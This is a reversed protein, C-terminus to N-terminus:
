SFRSPGCPPGPNPELHRRHGHEPRRPITEAGVFFLRHRPRTLPPDRNAPACVSADAGAPPYLSTQPSLSHSPPSPPLRREPRSYTLPPMDSIHHHFQTLSHTSFHPIPNFGVAKKPPAKNHPQLHVPGRPFRPLCAPLFPRLPTHITDQEMHPLPHFLFRSRLRLTCIWTDLHLFLPPRPSPPLYRPIPNLLVLIM